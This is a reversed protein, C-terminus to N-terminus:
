KSLKNVPGETVYIM